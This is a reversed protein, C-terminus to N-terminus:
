SSGDCLLKKGRRAALRRFQAAPYGRKQNRASWAAQGLTRRLWRNAKRITASHSRGASENQGPCIGAWALYPATAFQAM